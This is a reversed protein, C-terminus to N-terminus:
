CLVASPARGSQYVSSSLAQKRVSFPSFMLRPTVPTVVVGAVANTMADPSSPASEVLWFPALVALEGDEDVVAVEDSVEDSV